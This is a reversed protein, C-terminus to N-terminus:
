SSLNNEFSSVIQGIMINNSEVVSKVWAILQHVGVTSDPIVWLKHEFILLYCTSDNAQVESGIFLCYCSKLQAKGMWHQTENALRMNITNETVFVEGSSM